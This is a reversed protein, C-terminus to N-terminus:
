IDGSEALKKRKIRYKYETNETESYKSGTRKKLNFKLKTKKLLYCYCISILCHGRFM